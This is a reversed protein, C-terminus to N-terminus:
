IGKELEALKRRWFTDADWHEVPKMRMPTMVRNPIPPLGCTALRIPQMKPTDM